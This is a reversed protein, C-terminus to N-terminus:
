AMDDGASGRKRLAYTPTQARWIAWCAASASAAAVMRRTDRARRNTRERRAHGGDEYPARPPTKPQHRNGNNLARVILGVGATALLAIPLPNDRATDLLSRGSGSSRDVLRKLRGVTADTVTDKVDALARAPSLRTQIADITESMEGRTQEIQSRIEDTTSAPVATAAGPDGAGVVEEEVEGPGQAM